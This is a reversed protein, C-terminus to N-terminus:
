SGALSLKNRAPDGNEGRDQGVLNHTNCQSLANPCVRPADELRGRIKPQERRGAKKRTERLQKMASIQDRAITKAVPKNDGGRLEYNADAGHEGNTSRSLVAYVRRAIAAAVLVTAKTHHFGESVKKDYIAALQPDYRRGVEAALYLYHRLLKKGAKTM